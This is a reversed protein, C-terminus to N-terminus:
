RTPPAKKKNHEPKTKTPTTALRVATEVLWRAQHKHRTRTRAIRRRLQQVRDYAMRSGKVESEKSRLELVLLMHQRIAIALQTMRHQDDPTLSAFQREWLGGSEDGFWVRGLRGFGTSPLDELVAVRRDQLPFAKSFVNYLLRDKTPRIWLVHGGFPIMTPATSARLRSLLLQRDAASLQRGKKRRPKLTAMLERLEDVWVAVNLSQGERYVAHYVGVLEFRRSKCSVALVPSGSNGSSLQADIVLDYHDWQDETDHERPNIVKGVSLAQFAGLPFGRVQVAAGAELAASQGLNFPITKVSLPAKLISIDLAADSVVRQLVVDDKTYADDERDVISVTQSVRRCGSPVGDVREEKTTVFPWETIHENTMLYTQKGHKRFAFATGHATVTERRHRVRGGRGYYLCDYVASSRVCFTYRTRAEELRAAPAVLTLDRAYAGTCSARRARPKAAAVGLLATTL